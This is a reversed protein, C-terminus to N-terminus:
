RSRRTSSRCRSARWGRSRACGSRSTACTTASPTTSSRCSRGALAAGAPRRDPLHDLVHRDSHAREPGAAAGDDGARRRRRGPLQHRLDPRRQPQPRSVGAVPAARAPVPRQPLRPDHGAGSPNRRPQGSGQARQGAPHDRLRRSGGRAAPPVPRRRTRRAATRRATAASPQRARQRLPDQAAVARALGLVSVLVTMAVSAAALKWFPRVYRLVRLFYRM